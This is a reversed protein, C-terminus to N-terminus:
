ALAETLVRRGELGGSVRALVDYLDDPYDPRVDDYLDAVQDFLRGRTVSHETAAV